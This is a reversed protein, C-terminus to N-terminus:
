GSVPMIWIDMSKGRRRTFAIRTGDPSFVARADESTAMGDTLPRLGTGDANIVYVVMVGTRNSSFLVRKGDPSWSPWGENANPSDSLNKADKMDPGALMIDDNGNGFGRLFVLHKGDPAYQACTEDEKTATLRSVGSGDANMLYVDYANADDRLSNFIIKSGDPSWHPHIDSAPNNTLNKVATGDAKMVYIEDNGTAASYFVIKSGDPSFSPNRCDKMAPTLDSLGSGDPGMVYLHWEGSRNSQFVIKTGDPSWSPFANEIGTLPQPAGAAIQVSAALLLTLM